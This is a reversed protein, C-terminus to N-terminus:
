ISISGKALVGGDCVLLSGTIYSSERGLLFLAARAPEEADALRGLPVEARIVDRYRARDQESVGAWMLPTETPGPVIANVRIGHPAYDVALTRVLSSVGGKSAAYASAGGAAFAVSAAPSSCLVLSGPTATGVLHRLVAQAVLFSGTLNVELVHRWDAPSLTHAVGGIDVGAAAVLGTPPAELEAVATDVAARVRSEDTVDCGLGIAAPAGEGRARAATDAASAEDLDLLCVRYGARGALLAAARGIGHGGGTIVVLRQDM